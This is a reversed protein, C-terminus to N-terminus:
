SFSKKEKLVPEASFKDIFSQATGNFLPSDNYKIEIKKNEFLQLFDKSKVALHKEYCHNHMEQPVGKITKTFLNEMAFLQKAFIINFIFFKIMINM